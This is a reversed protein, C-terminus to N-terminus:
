EGLYWRSFFSAGWLILDFIGYVWFFCAHRFWTKLVFFGSCTSLFYFFHFRAMIYFFFLCSIVPFAVRFGKRGSIVLQLLLGAM